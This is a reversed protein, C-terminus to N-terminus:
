ETLTLFRRLLLSLIFGVFFLAFCFRKEFSLLGMLSWLLLLWFFLLFLLWNLLSFRFDLRLHFFLLSHYNFIKLRQNLIATQFLLHLNLVNDLLILTDFLPVLIGDIIEEFIHYNNGSNLCRSFITNRWTLKFLGLVRM